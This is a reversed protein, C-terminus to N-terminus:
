LFFKFAEELVNYLLPNNPVKEFSALSSGELNFSSDLSCATFLVAALCFTPAAELLKIDIGHTRALLLLVPEAFM